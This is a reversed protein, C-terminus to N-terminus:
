KKTLRNTMLQWQQKEVEIIAFMKNPSFSVIKAEYGGHYDKDAIVTEGIKLNQKNHNIM